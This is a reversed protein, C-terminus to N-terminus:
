VALPLQTLRSSRKMSPSGWITVENASRARALVRAFAQAGRYRCPLIPWRDPFRREKIRSSPFAAVGHLGDRYQSVASMSGSTFGHFSSDECCGGQEACERQGPRTRRATLRRALTGRVLRRLRRSVPRPAAPPGILTRAGVELFWQQGLIVGLFFGHGGQILRALSLSVGVDRGGVAPQEPLQGLGQVGLADDLEPGRGALGSDPEGHGEALGAAMKVSVVDVRAADRHRARVELSRPEVVQDGDDFTVPVLRDLLVLIRDVDDEDVGVLLSIGVVEFFIRGITRGPPKIKACSM